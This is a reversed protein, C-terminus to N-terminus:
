RGLRTLVLFNLKVFFVDVDKRLYYDYKPGMGLTTRPDTGIKWKPVINYSFQDTGRTDYCPGPTDKGSFETKALEKNVFM